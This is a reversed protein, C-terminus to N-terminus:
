NLKFGICGGSSHFFPQYKTVVIFLPFEDTLKPRPIHLVGINLGIFRKYLYVLANLAIRQTNPSCNRNISLHNLFTEVEAAGLDKPHKKGHFFIFRKVWHIYTQETRYALGSSRIHHRLQDLFRPSNAPLRHRVDDM